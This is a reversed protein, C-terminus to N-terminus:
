LENVFETEAAAERKTDIYYLMLFYTMGNNTSQSYEFVLRCEMGQGDRYTVSKERDGSKPNFSDDEERTIGPKGLYKLDLDSMLSTYRPEADKPSDYDSYVRFKYFIGSPSFYYEM